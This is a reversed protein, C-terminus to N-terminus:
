TLLERGAQERVMYKTYRYSAPDPAPGSVRSM